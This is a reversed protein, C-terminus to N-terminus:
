FAEAQERTLHVLKAKAIRLGAEEFKSYIKGIINKATADPKVMSLTQEINTM